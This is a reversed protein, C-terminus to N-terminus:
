YSPDTNTTTTLAHTALVASVVDSLMRVSIQLHLTTISRESRASGGAPIAQESAVPHDISRSTADTCHKMHQVAPM